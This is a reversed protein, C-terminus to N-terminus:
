KATIHRWTLKDSTSDVKLRLHINMKRGRSYCINMITAPARQLVAKLLRPIVRSIPLEGLDLELGLDGVGDVGNEIWAWGRTRFRDKLRSREEEWVVIPEGAAM